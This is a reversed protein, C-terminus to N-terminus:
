LLKELSIQSGEPVRCPSKPITVGDGQVIGGPNNNDRCVEGTIYAHSDSATNLSWVNYVDQDWTTIRLSQTVPDFPGVYGEWSGKHLFLVAGSNTTMSVRLSLLSFNPPNGYGDSQGPVVSWIGDRDGPYDDHYCQNVAVWGSPVDCPTPFTTCTGSAQEVAPQIMQVCVQPESQAAPILGGALLLAAMLQPIAQRSM